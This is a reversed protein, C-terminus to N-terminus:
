GRRVADDSQELVKSSAADLSSHTRWFTEVTEAQERADAAGLEFLVNQWWGRADRFRVRLFRADPAGDEIAGKALGRVSGAALLMQERDLVAVDEIEPWPLLFAKTGWRRAFVALHRTTLLVFPSGLPTALEPHGGVYRAVTMSVSSGPEPQYGLEASLRRPARAGNLVAMTAIATAAIVLPTLLVGIPLVSSM